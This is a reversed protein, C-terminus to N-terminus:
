VLENSRKNAVMKVVPWSIAWLVMLGLSGYIVFGIRSFDFREDSNYANVLFLGVVFFLNLTIILGCFWAKFTLDHKYVSGVAYVLANAITLLILVIYFFIDRSILKSEIGEQQVIVNEPLDAYVYLLAGLVGILSFFWVARFVKFMMIGKLNPRL